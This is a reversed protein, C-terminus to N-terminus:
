GMPDKIATPSLKYGTSYSPSYLKNNFLSSNYDGPIMTRYFFTLGVIMVGTLLGVWFVVMPHVNAYNYVATKM